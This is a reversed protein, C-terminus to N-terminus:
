ILNKIKLFLEYKNPSNTVNTLTPAAISSPFSSSGLVYYDYRTGNAAFFAPPVSAGGIRTSAFQGGQKLYCVFYLGPEIDMPIAFDSLYLGTANVNITPTSDLLTSSMDSNVQYIAYNLTGASTYLPVFSGMGYVRVPYPIYMMNGRIIPSETSNASNTFSITNSALYIGNVADIFNFSTFFSYEVQSARLQNVVRWDSTHHPLNALTNVGDALKYVGTVVGDARKYYIITGSPYVVNANAQFNSYTFILVRNAVLNDIYGKNVLGNANTSNGVNEITLGGANNGNALVSQLNQSGGGSAYNKITLADVKKNDNAVSDVIIFKDNDNITTKTPLQSIKKPSSM